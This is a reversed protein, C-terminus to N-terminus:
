KEHQGPGEALGVPATQTAEKEILDILEGRRYMVMKGITVPKILGQQRWKHLTNRHVSIFHAAEDVRLFHKDHLTLGPRFDARMNM